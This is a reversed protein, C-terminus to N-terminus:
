ELIDRYIERFELYSNAPFRERLRNLGWNTGIASFCGSLIIFAIYTHILEWHQSHRLKTAIVVGIDTVSIM